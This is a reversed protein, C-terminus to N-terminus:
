LTNVHTILAQESPVQAGDLVVQLFERSFLTWTIPVQYFVYSNGLIGPKNLLFRLLFYLADPIEAFLTHIERWKPRIKFSIQPLLM